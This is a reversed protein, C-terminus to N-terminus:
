RLMPRMEGHLRLDSHHQVMIALQGDRAMSAHMGAQGMHAFPHHQCLSNKCFKTGCNAYGAPPMGQNLCAECILATTAGLMTHEVCWVQEGCRHCSQPPRNHKTYYIPATITGDVLICEGYELACGIIDHKQRRYERGLPGALWIFGAWASLEFYAMMRRPDPRDGGPATCMARLALETESDLTDWAEEGHGELVEFIMEGIMNPLAKLGPRSLMEHFKAECQGPIFRFTEMYQPDAERSQPSGDADHIEYTIKSWDDTVDVDSTGRFLAYPDVVDSYYFASSAGAVLVSILESPMPVNFRSFQQLCFDICEDPIEGFEFNMLGGNGNSVWDWIQDEKGDDYYQVPEKIAASRM